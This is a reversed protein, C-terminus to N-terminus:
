PVPTIELLRDIQAQLAVPVTTEDGVIWAHNYVGHAPDGAAHPQIDLLYGQITQDLLEPDGLLVLPGYSGSGSLAAAAAAVQPDGTASAFVLGHGPHGVGWGFTPDAYRAFAVSNGTPNRGAIRVVRGLARLAAVVQAGIAAPPGVVYIQPDNLAAIASRTEPSLADQASLLVPVGSEAALAAAPMAYGPRDSSVIMVQSARTGRASIAFSAIAGDLALPDASAIVTSRLGPPAPARGIRIVQAGGLAPAGTPALARLAARTAAPIRRGDTLLIPARLPPAELVSAAIGARWDRRDVLVVASPRSARDVAPFVIRAVAAAVVVPDASAIRTTNQTALAPYGPSAAVPAAPRPQPHAAPSGSGSVSHGCGAVALAALAPLVTRVRM